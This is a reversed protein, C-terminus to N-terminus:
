RSYTGWHHSAGAGWFGWSESVFWLLAILALLAIIINLLPQPCGILGLIWRIVLIVIVAVIVGILLPIM